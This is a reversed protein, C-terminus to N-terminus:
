SCETKRSCGTTAQNNCSSRLADLLDQTPIGECVAKQDIHKAEHECEELMSPTDDHFVEGCVKKLRGYSLM